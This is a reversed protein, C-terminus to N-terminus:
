STLESCVIKKSSVTPERLVPSQPLHSSFFTRSVTLIMAM